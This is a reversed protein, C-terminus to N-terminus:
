ANNFLRRFCKSEIIIIVLAKCRWGTYEEERNYDRRVISSPFIFPDCAQRKLSHRISAIYSLRVSHIYLFSQYYVKRRIYIYPETDTATHIDVVSKKEEENMYVITIIHATTYKYQVYAWITVRHSTSRSQPSSYFYGGFEPKIKNNYNQECKSEWFQSSTEGRGGCTPWGNVSNEM